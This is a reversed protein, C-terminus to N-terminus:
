TTAQALKRFYIRTKIAVLLKISGNLKNVLVHRQIVTSFFQILSNSMRYYIDVVGYALPTCLVAAKAYFIVPHNESAYIFPVITMMGGLLLSGTKLLSNDINKDVLDKYKEEEREKQHLKQELKKVYLRLSKKAKKENEETIIIYKDARWKNIMDAANLLNSKNVEEELSATLFQPIYLFICLGILMIKM